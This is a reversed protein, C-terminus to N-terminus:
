KGLSVEFWSGGSRQRGIVPMLWSHRARAEKKKNKILEWGGM